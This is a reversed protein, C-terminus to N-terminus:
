INLNSTDFMGMKDPLIPYKGSLEDITNIASWGSNAVKNWAYIYQNRIDVLKGGVQKSM